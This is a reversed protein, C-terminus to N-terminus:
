FTVREFGLVTELFNSNVSDELNGVLLKGAGFPIELTWVDEVLSDPAVRHIEVRDGTVVVISAVGDVSIDGTQPSTKENPGEAGNFLMFDGEDFNHLVVKSITKM